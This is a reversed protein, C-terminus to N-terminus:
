FFFVKLNIPTQSESFYLQPHTDTSVNLYLLIAFFAIKAHWYQM